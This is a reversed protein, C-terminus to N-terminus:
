VHVEDLPPSPLVHLLSGTLTFWLGTLCQSLQAEVLLEGGCM